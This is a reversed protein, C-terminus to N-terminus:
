RSRPRLYPTPRPRLAHTWSVGGHGSLKLGPRGPGVYGEHGDVAQGYEDLGKRGRAVLGQPFRRAVWADYKGVNVQRAAGHLTRRTGHRGRGGARGVPSPDAATGEEDGARHRSDRAPGHPPGARSM